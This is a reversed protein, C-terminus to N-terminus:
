FIKSCLKAHSQLVITQTFLINGLFNYLNRCKVKLLFAFTFYCYVGGGGGGVFFFFYFLYIFLYIYIYIYIFLYIFSLSVESRSVIMRILESDNTGFFKGATDNYLREAFFEDKNRALKVSFSFSPRCIYRCIILEFVSM